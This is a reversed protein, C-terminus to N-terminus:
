RSSTAYYIKPERTNNSFLQAFDRGFKQSANNAENIDINWTGYERELWDIATVYDEFNVVMRDSTAILKNISRVYRLNIFYDSGPRRTLEFNAGRLRYGERTSGYIQKILKKEATLRGDSDSKMKYFGLDVGKVHKFDSPLQYGITKDTIPILRETTLREMDAKQLTHYLLFNLDNLWDLYLDTSVESLTDNKQRELREIAEEVTITDADGSPIFYDVIITSTPADGLTLVSGQVSFDTYVAGDVYIDNIETPTYNLTFTKNSGDINGYPVENEIPELEDFNSKSYYYDVLVTATPVDELDLTSGNLVYDEYIVGDVYVDAIISPPNDLVYRTNDSDILGTPVEKLALTLGTVKRTTTWYDVYITTTPADVLTLTGSADTFTTYIAGDVYVDAVQTPTNALTYVKNVGNILGTPVEKQIFM